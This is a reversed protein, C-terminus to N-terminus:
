LKLTFYLCKWLKYSSPKNLDLVPDYLCIPKSFMKTLICICIINMFAEFEAQVYSQLLKATYM